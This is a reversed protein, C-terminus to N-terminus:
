AAVPFVSLEHHRDARAVHLLRRSHHPSVDAPGRAVDGPVGSREHFPTPELRHLSVIQDWAGEQSPMHDTLRMQQTPAHAIGVYDAIRPFMHRWRFTDGNTINFDQNRASQALGAWATARALLRADTIQYMVDAAQEPGPFRLPINEHKCLTAYVAIAALLNM